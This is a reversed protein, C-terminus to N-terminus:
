PRLSPPAGGPRGPLRLAPLPGSPGRGAGLARSLTSAATKVAPAVRDVDIRNIWGAVSIAAVVRDDVGFVPSAVCAIGRTSEEFEFALGTDRIRGLQRVLLGPMVVTQATRRPLDAQLVQRVLPEDAFALQAKGVATCHLEMRGGVRSPLAPGDPGPLKEVYVVESGDMVALHVTQRTAQFLDTLIPLAANRLGRQRPVLQGLEFLKMGLRVGRPTREVMGWSVLETILRHVTPKPLGSRRSLEAFTLEVDDALFATLLTFARGLVSVPPEQVDSQTVRV